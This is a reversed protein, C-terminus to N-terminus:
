SKWIWRRRLRAGDTLRPFTCVLQTQFYPRLSSRRSRRLSFASRGRVSRSRGATSERKPKRGLARDIAGQSLIPARSM